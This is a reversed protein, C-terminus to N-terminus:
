FNGDLKGIDLQRATPPSQTRNPLILHAAFASAQTNAQLEKLKAFPQCKTTRKLTLKNDTTDDKVSAGLTRV